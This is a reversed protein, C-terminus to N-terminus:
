PHITRYFVLHRYTSRVKNQALANALYQAGKDGLKSSNLSLTM